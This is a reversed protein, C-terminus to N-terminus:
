CRRRLCPHKCRDGGTLGVDSYIDRRRLGDRAGLHWVPLEQTESEGEVPSWESENMLRQLFADISVGQRRAKALLRAETEPKLQLNM